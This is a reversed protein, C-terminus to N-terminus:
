QIALRLTMPKGERLLQVNATKVSILVPGEPVGARLSNRVEGRLLAARALTGSTEPGAGPVLLGAAGRDELRTLDALELGPIVVM